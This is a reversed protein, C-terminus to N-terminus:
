TCKELFARTKMRTETGESANDYFSYKGNWPPTLACTFVMGCPLVFDDWRHLTWIWNGNISHICWIRSIYKYYLLTKTCLDFLLRLADM